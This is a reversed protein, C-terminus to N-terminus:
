VLALADILAALQARPANDLATLPLPLCPHQALGLLEAATAISRLSGGQQVFFAWLPALRQSLRMAEQANGSQAARTIALATQPFLGGIVSYWADCGANLGVAAVADGSIGITVHAPILARLRDVREKAAVPDAQVAPIKISAINPLQAIRGHLADSFTFHTTGPNDYVCLPISIHKTVAEFLGFVEDDSLKQYSVAALLLGKAGANQADQANNLVDRTRLAGIGIMVPTSGAHEVALKAVHAREARTLYAYSGTSGLAGIADVGTNALRTILSIFAADDIGAENMPTLPFASLGTFM